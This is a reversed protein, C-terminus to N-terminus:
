PGAGGGGARRSRRELRSGARAWRFSRASTRWGRMQYFVELPRWPGAASHDPRLGSSCRLAAVIRSRKLRLWFSGPWAVRVDGM